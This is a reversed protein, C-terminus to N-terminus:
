HKEMWDNFSDWRGIHISFATSHVYSRMVSPQPTVYLPVLMVDNSAQKVMEQIVKLRETKDYTKMAKNCLALWEPSKYQSITQYVYPSPGWGGLLGSLWDPNVGVGGSALEKWGLKMTEAAFRGRDAIDLRVTIGVKALYGQVVAGFDRATQSDQILLETQFGNPFGAETLLQKAKNVDYTRPNFGDVYGPLGQIAWQTLPTAAGQTLLKAMAPRDIAYEIAERVKKNAYKSNPDASNFMLASAYGPGWTLKFGLKELQLANNLPAGTWMDADGAQMMASAVVADPILRYEIADLYPKDKQWYNPNKVVKLVVDRQFEALKFPGTAVPNTRAWEKGNKQIATPSLMPNFGYNFTVSSTFDKLYMKLTYQDIVEMRDFLPLDAMRKTDILLQMNWRISEADVPTGDHYTVGKQLHWTITKNVPDEDYSEILEPEWGGKGFRLLREEMLITGVQDGPGMEPPYGLITPFYASTVVKLTGGRVPGGPAQTTTTAPKTATASTPASASTPAPVTSPSTAPASSPAPQSCGALIMGIVLISSVILWLLKTM